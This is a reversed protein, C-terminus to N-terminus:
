REWPFRPTFPWTLGVIFRDRGPDVPQLMYQLYLGLFQLRGGVEQILTGDDGALWAMGAAHVLQVEPPGLVPLAVADPTPIRYRSEVLIVHDGRHAGVPATLLTRPGGVFTWRQGPLTDSGLPLQGLALIELTHDLLGHMAFRAWGSLRDFVHEGGQWERGAEYEAWAVLDTELGHWQLDLRTVASTIRGDDVAPNPRAPEGLLHWPNGAELSEADEIQGALRLVAFFRKSADGFGRSLAVWTRRADYYDRFDDGDWFYNISNRVDSWAWDERTTGARAHGVDLALGRGQLNFSAGYTPHGAETRWGGHARLTPTADAVRPLRYGAGWVVGLGNVRDYTPTRLGGFGDLILREPTGSAEIVIRDPERIVRYGADPLDIITGGIRARESRYLGGGINVLDGGVVAEHRLFVGADVLVLDGLIVGEHIVTADLVLVSRPITDGSRIRTDSTIIMPDAGLLRDLRRDLAVDSTGSTEVVPPAQGGQAVARAPPTGPVAAVVAVALWVAGRRKV